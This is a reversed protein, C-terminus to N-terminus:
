VIIKNASKLQKSHPPLAKGEILIPYSSNEIPTSSVKSFIINAPNLNKETM